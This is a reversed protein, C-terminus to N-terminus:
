FSTGLPNGGLRVCYHGAVEEITPLRKTTGKTGHWEAGGRLRDWRTLEGLSAIASRYLAAFESLDVESQDEPCGLSWALTLDEAVLADNYETYIHRKEAPWEGVHFVAM